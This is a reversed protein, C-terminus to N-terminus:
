KEEMLRQLISPGDLRTLLSFYDSHFFRSVEKMAASAERDDPKRKLRRRAERYDRVAQMVVANFLIEYPQLCDDTAGAYMTKLQTM